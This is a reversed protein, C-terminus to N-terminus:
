SSLLADFVSITHTERPLFINKM